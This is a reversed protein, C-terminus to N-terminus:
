HDDRVRNLVVGVVVAPREVTDFPDWHRPLTDDVCCVRTQQLYESLTEEIEFIERGASKSSQFIRCRKRQGRTQYVLM